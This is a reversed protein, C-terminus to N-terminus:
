SNTENKRGEGFDIEVGSVSYPIVQFDINLGLESSLLRSLLVCIRAWIWRETQWAGTQGQEIWKDTDGFFTAFDKKSLVLRLDIDRPTKSTLASGCLIVDGNFYHAINHLLRSNRLQHLLRKKNM